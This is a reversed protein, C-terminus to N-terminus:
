YIVLTEIDRDRERDTLDLTGTEDTFFTEMLVSGIEMRGQHANYRGARVMMAPDLGELRDILDQVTDIKRRDITSM